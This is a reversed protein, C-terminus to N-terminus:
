VDSRDGDASSYWELVEFLAQEAILAHAESLNAEQYHSGPSTNAQITRVHISVDKPITGTSTLPGIMRELTAEGAGWAIGRQQCISHLVKESIYRVKNLTSPIDTISLANLASLDASLTTRQTSLQHIRNSASRRLQEKLETNEGLVRRMRILRDVRALLEETSFPKTLYDDVGERLAKLMVVDGAKATLMIFPIEASTESVRCRRLLEMGDMRPMMLDSVVLLPRETLICQLGQEGDACVEVDYGERALCSRIFERM